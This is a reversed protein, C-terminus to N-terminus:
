DLVDQIQEVVRVRGASEDRTGPLGHGIGAQDVHSRVLERGRHGVGYGTQRETYAVRDTSQLLHQCVLVAVVRPVAAVVLAIAAIVLTIAAIVLAVSPVVRAVPVPGAKNTRNGLVRAGQQTVRNGRNDVAGTGDEAKAARDHAVHTASQETSDVGSQIATPEAAAPEAPLGTPTSESWAGALKAGTESRAPAAEVVTPALRPGTPSPGVVTPAIPSGAEPSSTAGIPASEPMAPTLEARTGPKAAPKTQAALDIGAQPKTKTTAEASV